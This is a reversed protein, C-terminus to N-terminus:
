RNSVVIFAGSGGGMDARSDPLLEHLCVIDVMMMMM